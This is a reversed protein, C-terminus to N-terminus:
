KKKPKAQGPKAARRLIANFDAETGTRGGSKIFAKLEADKVTSKKDKPM